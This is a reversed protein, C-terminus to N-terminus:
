QHLRVRVTADADAAVLTTKGMLKNGTATATAVKNTADWYVSTGAAIGSGAGTAKPVDFLGEFAFRLVERSDRFSRGTYGNAWAAELLLEQLGIGGRFRKSAADLAKEDYVKEVDGFRATLMCAAELITGTVSQDIVHAAPAKPRDARMVELETRTTDWGAKIAQAAIAPHKDGCVKEIAAIREKEAAAKARMDAVPDMTVGADPAVARASAAQAAPAAAAKIETGGAGPKVDGGAGGDAAVTEVTTDKGDMTSKEKAARAAAIAASTQDDAGSGVFSVEVLASKRAVNVPGTVERGNVNVSQGERVFEVDAVSAGISAQWPYGNDADAVVERASQSTSSIVGSVRLAGNETQLGDIHGV